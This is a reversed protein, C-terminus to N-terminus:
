FKRWDYRGRGKGWVIVRYWGALGFVMFIPGVLTGCIILIEVFPYERKLIGEIVEVEEPVGWNWEETGNVDIKGRGVRLEMISHLRQWGCKTTQKTINFGAQQLGYRLQNDHNLKWQTCVHYSPRPSPRTLNTFFISACNSDSCLCGESCNPDTTSPLYTCHTPTPPLSNDHDERPLLHRKWWSSKPDTTWQLLLSPAQNRSSWPLVQPSKITKSAQAKEDNNAYPSALILHPLFLITYLNPLSLLM